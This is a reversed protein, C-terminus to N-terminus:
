TCFQKVHFDLDSIGVPRELVDDYVYLDKESDWEYETGGTSKVTWLDAGVIDIRCGILEVEFLRSWNSLDKGKKELFIECYSFKLERKCERCTSTWNYSKGFEDCAVVDTGIRVNSQVLSCHQCAISFWFQEV